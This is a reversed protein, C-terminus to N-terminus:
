TSNALLLQIRFAHTAAFWPDLYPLYERQLVSPLTFFDCKHYGRCQLAGCRCEGEDGDVANVAYDVLIEEDAAVDRKTLLFRERNVSYIYCNPECSHNIYCEPSRMLVVTGDPLYDFHIESEGDEPRLPHESDIVRSDDIRLLVTGCSIAEIAFVGHGQIPSPVVAIRPRKASEVPTL